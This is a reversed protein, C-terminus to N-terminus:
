AKGSLKHAAAGTRYILWTCFTSALAAFMVIMGAAGFVVGLVWSLALSFVLSLLPHDVLLERLAPVKAVIMMEIAVACVTLGAILVLM